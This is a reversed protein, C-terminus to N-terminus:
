LEAFLKPKLKVTRMNFEWKKSQEARVDEDDTFAPAALPPPPATYALLGARELKLILSELTSLLETCTDLPAERDLLGEINPSPSIFKSCLAVAFLMPPATATSAAPEFLATTSIADLLKKLQEAAPAFTPFRTTRPPDTATNCTADTIKVCVLKVREPTNSAFLSPEMPPM